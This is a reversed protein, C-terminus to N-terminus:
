LEVEGSDVKAKSAESLQDWVDSEKYDYVKMDLSDDKCRVELGAREYTEMLHRINSYSEFNNIVTRAIDSEGHEIASDVREVVLLFATNLAHHWNFIVIQAQADPSIPEHPYYTLNNM